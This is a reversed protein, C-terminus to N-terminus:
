RNTSIDLRTNMERSCREADFYEAVPGPTAAAAMDKSGAEVHGLIRQILEIETRREM